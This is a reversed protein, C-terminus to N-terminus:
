AVCGAEAASQGRAKAKLYQRWRVDFLQQAYKHLKVDMPALERLQQLEKETINPLDPNDKNVNSRPFPQAQPLGLQWSLMEISDDVREVLGFWALHKLSSKAMSLAMEPHNAMLKGRRELEDDDLEPRASIWTECDCIGALWCVGGMGDRFADRYQFASEKNRLIKSVTWGDKGLVLDPDAKAPLMQYYQINSASRAGPERLMVLMRSKPDMYSIDAHIIKERNCDDKGDGSAVIEKWAEHVGCVHRTLWLNMSIGGTKAVHIFSITDRPAILWSQNCSSAAQAQSTDLFLNTGEAVKVGSRQRSQLLQVEDALAEMCNTARASSSVLLACVALM